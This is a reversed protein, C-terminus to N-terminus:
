WGRRSCTWTQSLHDVSDLPTPYGMPPSFQVESLLEAGRGGHLREQEQLCSGESLWGEGLM